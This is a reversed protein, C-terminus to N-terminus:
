GPEEGLSSHGLWGGSGLGLIALRRLSGDRTVTDLLMLWTGTYGTGKLKKRPASWGAV